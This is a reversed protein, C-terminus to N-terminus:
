PCPNPYKKQIEGIRKIIEKTTFYNKTDLIKSRIWRPKKKIPNIPNNIKEPHRLKM